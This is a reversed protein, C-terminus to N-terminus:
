QKRTCLFFRFGADELNKLIFGLALNVKEACKLNNFLHDLQENVITKNLTELAYNFVRHRASELQSDVLFHQFYRLKRRLTHDEVDGVIHELTM